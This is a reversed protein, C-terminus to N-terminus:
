PATSQNIVPKRPWRTRSWLKSHPPDGFRIWLQWGVPNWLTLVGHSIHNIPLITHNVQSWHNYPNCIQIYCNFSISQIWIHICWGGIIPLLWDVQIQYSWVQWKRTAWFNAQQIDQSTRFHFPKPHGPLPVPVWRCIEHNRTTPRSKLNFFLSKFISSFNITPQKNQLRIAYNSYM